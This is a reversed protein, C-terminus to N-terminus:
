IKRVSKNIRNYEFFILSFVLPITERLHGLPSFFFNWVMYISLPVIIFLLSNNKSYKCVILFCRLVTCFILVICIMGGLGAWLWITFLISHGRIIESDSEINSNLMLQQLRAFKGGPDKAWSGYGWIPKEEIAKMAIFVDMRGMYLLNLPNYPNEIQTQKQANLGGINGKLVQDVYIVYLLYLSVISLGGYIIFKFKSITKNRYYLVITAIIFVLTNSRADLFVCIFAYVLFILLSIKYKKGKLKSVFYAILIVVTNTFSMFYVKFFNTNGAIETVDIERNFVLLSIAYTVVYLIINKESKDFIYLLFVTSIFSFVISAWGRLYDSSLSDNIVLDSFILFMLLCSYYFGVRYLIPHKKFFFMLKLYPFFLLSIIEAGFLQGIYNIRMRSFLGTLMIVLNSKKM